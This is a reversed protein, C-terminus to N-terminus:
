SLFFMPLRDQHSGFVLIVLSINAASVCGCLKFGLLLILESFYYIMSRIHLLLDCFTFLVCLSLLVKCLILHSQSTLIHKLAQSTIHLSTSSSFFLAVFICMCKMCNQTNYMYLPNSSTHQFYCAYMCLM